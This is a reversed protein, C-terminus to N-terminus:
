YGRKRCYEEVDLGGKEAKAYWSEAFKLNQKIGRGMEYSKGIEYAAGPIEKVKRFEKLGEKEDKKLGYGDILCYAKLLTLDAKLGATEYWSDYWFDFSDLPYDELEWSEFDNFWAELRDSSFSHLRHEYDAELMGKLTTAKNDMEYARSLFEVAKQPNKDVAWGELYCRGLRVLSEADNKDAAKMLSSILLDKDYEREGVASQFCLFSFSYPDPNMVREQEETDWITEPSDWPEVARYYHENKYSFPSQDKFHELWAPDTMEGQLTYCPWAENRYVELLDKNKMYEIDDYKDYSDPEPSKVSVSRVYAKGVKHYFYDGEKRFRDQIWNLSAGLPTEKNFDNDSFYYGAKNDREKRLPAAMLALVAGEDLNPSDKDKNFFSFSLTSGEVRIQSVYGTSFGEIYDLVTYDTGNTDGTFAARGIWKLDAPESWQRGQSSGSYSALVLRGKELAILLGIEKRDYRDYWILPYGVWASFDFEELEAGELKDVIEYAPLAYRPLYSMPSLDPPVPINFLMDTPIPIFGESRTFDVELSVPAKRPSVPDCRKYSRAPNFAATEWCDGDSIHACWEPATTRIRFGGNDPLMNARLVFGRANQSVWEQNYVNDHSVEKSLPGDGMNDMLLMLAFGPTEPVPGSDPHISEIGLILSSPSPKKLVTISFLTSM